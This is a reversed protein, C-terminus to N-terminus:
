RRLFFFFYCFCNRPIELHRSLMKIEPWARTIAPQQELLRIGIRFRFWIRIGMELGLPLERGEVRVCCCTKFRLGWLTLHRTYRFGRWLCRFQPPPPHGFCWTKCGYSLSPRYHTKRFLQLPFEKIQNLIRM